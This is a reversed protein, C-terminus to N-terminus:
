NSKARLLDDSVFSANGVRNVREAAGIEEFREGVFDLAARPFIDVADVGHTAHDGSDLAAIRLAFDSLGRVTILHGHVFLFFIMMPTFSKTASSFGRSM